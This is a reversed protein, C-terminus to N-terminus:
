QPAFPNFPNPAAASNGIANPASSSSSSGAGFNIAQTNDPVDSDNFNLKLEELQLEAAEITPFGDDGGDEDDEEDMSKVEATAAPRPAPRSKSKRYLNIHSRMEPDEEIDQMFQEYDQMDRLEDAKKQKESEKQLSKLRWQRNKSRNKRNPFTKRILIVDPMQVDKLPKIQTDSLNCNRVDYGLVTDGAKLVNGLHTLCEYSEDNVGMDASRAVTVEALQLKSRLSNHKNFGEGKAAYDAKEVNLVIFEVLQKSNMISSFPYRWYTGGSVEVFKLTVPDILHLGSSVKHCVM